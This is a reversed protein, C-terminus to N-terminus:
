SIGGDQLADLDVTDALEEARAELAPRLKEVEADIAMQTAIVTESTDIIESAASQDLGLSELLSALLPPVSLDSNVMSMASKASRVRPDMGMKIIKM